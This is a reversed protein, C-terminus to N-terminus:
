WTSGIVRTSLLSEIQCVCDQENQQFTEQIRFTCLEKSPQHDRKNINIFLISIDNSSTNRDQREDYHDEQEAETNVIDGSVNNSHPSQNSM